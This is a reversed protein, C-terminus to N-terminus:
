LNHIVEDVIHEYECDFSGSDDSTYCTLDPGWEHPKGDADVATDVGRLNFYAEAHASTRVDGLIAAPRLKNGRVDIESLNQPFVMLRFSGSFCNDSLNIYDIGPPLRNIHIPGVLNNDSVDLHKLAEPLSDLAIEGCFQNSDAAFVKLSDPLDGLQCSGCFANASINIYTMCRPFDKCNISGHLANNSVSFDELKSPLHSTSLTGHLKAHSMAFVRVLPPIFYFPFQADTCVVIGADVSVVRQGGSDGECEIGPWACVDKFNGSGDQFLRMERKEVAGVVIEMLAQDSMSDYDLRGLAPDVTFLKTFCRLSQM